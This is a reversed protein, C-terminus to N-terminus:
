SNILVWVFSVGIPQHAEDIIEISLLRIMEMLKITWLELIFLFIQNFLFSCITIFQCYCLSFLEKQKSWKQFNGQKNLNQHFVMTYLEPVFFRNKLLKKAVFQFLNPVLYQCHFIKSLQFYQYWTHLWFWFEYICIDWVSYPQKFINMCFLANTNFTFNHFYIDWFSSSIWSSRMLVFQSRFSSSTKLFQELIKGSVEYFVNHM